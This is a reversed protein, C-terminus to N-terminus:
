DYTIIRDTAAETAIAGTDPFGKMPSSLGFQVPSPAPYRGPPAIRRFTCCFSVAGFGRMYMRPEPYPHFPATLACRTQPSVFPMAFGVPLLVLYAFLGPGPRCLSRPYTAPSKFLGLRNTVIPLSFHGGRREFSLRFLIRSVRLRSMFFRRRAQLFARRRRKENLM